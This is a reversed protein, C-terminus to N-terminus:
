VVCKLYERQRLSPSQISEWHELGTEVALGEWEGGGSKTRPPIVLLLLSLSPLAASVSFCTRAGLSSYLAGGLIAGLGFGFGQKLGKVM